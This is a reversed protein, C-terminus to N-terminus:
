WYEQDAEETDGVEWSRNDELDSDSVFEQDM